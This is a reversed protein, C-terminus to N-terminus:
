LFLRRDTCLSCGVDSSVLGTVSSIYSILDPFHILIVQSTDKFIHSLRRASHKAQGYDSSRCFFFSVYVTLTQLTEVLSKYGTFKVMKPTEGSRTYSAFFDILPM